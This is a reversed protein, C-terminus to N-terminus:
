VWTIADSESIAGETADPLPMGPPLKGLLALARMRSAPALWYRRVVTPCGQYGPVTESERHIAVGMDQLSSVTSHLCHDNLAREAEFRNYSRGAVFAELVRQWKLPPRPSTNRNRLQRQEFDDLMGLLGTDGGLGPAKAKPTSLDNLTDM